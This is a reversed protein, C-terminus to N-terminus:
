YPKLRALGAALALAILTKLPFGRLFLVVIFIALSLLLPYAIFYGKTISFLLLTLSIVLSFLLDM